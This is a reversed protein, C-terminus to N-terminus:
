CVGSKKVSPNEGEPLATKDFPCNPLYWKVWDPGLVDELYAMFVTMRLM